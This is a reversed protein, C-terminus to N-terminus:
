ATGRQRGLWIALGVLAGVIVPFPFIFSWLRHPGPGLAYLLIVIGFGLAVLVGAAILAGRRGFLGSMWIVILCSVAAVLCWILLVGM